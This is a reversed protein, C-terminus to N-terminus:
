EEVSLCQHAAALSTEDLVPFAELGRDIRKALGALVKGPGFELLAGVGLTQMARVSDVWLVPRYLQSVLAERLAAPDVHQKADVNHLVPIAPRRVEVGQLVEALKAAAERMLSSHSPVSVSLPLVRKAGKEQLLQSVRAVASTTGAVVVQGPSNFNVAEVVDEGQTAASCAQVVVADDLGLVAAMAGSGLPVAQQMLRGREAVVRVADAFDLAGACVLATYEGLSHGAMCRPMAGGVAQWVRWAAVGAALMIPQTIETRNIESAEGQASIARLDVGDLFTGSLAASAEAFTEDVCSQHAGWATMMGVSQSGQGPFVAAFAVSM